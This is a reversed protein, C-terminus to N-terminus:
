FPIDSLRCNLMQNSELYIVLYKSLLSCDKPSNLAAFLFPPQHAQPM